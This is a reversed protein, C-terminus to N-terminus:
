KKEEKLNNESTEKLIKRVVENTKRKKIGMTQSSVNKLMEPLKIGNEEYNKLEKKLNEVEKRFASKEEAHTQKLKSMEENTSDIKNKLETNELVLEKSKALISQKSKFLIDKEKELNWETKQAKELDEEYKKIKENKVILEQKLQYKEALIKELNTGTVILM